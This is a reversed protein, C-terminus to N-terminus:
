RRRLGRITRLGQTTLIGAILLMAVSPEPVAAVQTLTGSVTGTYNITSFDNQAQTTGTVGINAASGLPASFNLSVDEQITGNNNAYSSTFSTSDFQITVYPGPYFYTAADTQILSPGFKFPASINWSGTNTATDWDLTSGASAHVTYTTSSDKLSFVLGSADYTTM